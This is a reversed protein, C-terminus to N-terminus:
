ATDTNLIYNLLIYYCLWLKGYNWDWQFTWFHFKQFLSFSKFALTPVRPSGVRKLFSAILSEGPAWRIQAYKFWKWAISPLDSWEYPLQRFRAMLLVLNALVEQTLANQVGYKQALLQEFINIWNSDCSSILVYDLYLVSWNVLWIWVSRNVHGLCMKGSTLLLCIVVHHRCLFYSLIVWALSDIPKIVKLSKQKFVKWQFSAMM